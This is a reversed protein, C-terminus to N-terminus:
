IMRNNEQDSQFQPNFYFKISKNNEKTALTVIKEEKEGKVILNLDLKKLTNTLDSFDIDNLELNDDYLIKSFKSDLYKELGKADYINNKILFNDM